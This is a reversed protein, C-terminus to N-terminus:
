KRTATALARTIERMQRIFFQALPSLTRNRPTIIEVPSRTHPLAIPLAKFPHHKRRLSLAFAPHFALFRGTELLAYQFNRSNTMITAKPPTLGAGTFAIAALGGFFTDAPELVWPESLLDALAIKRQRTLPNTAAAVVVLPDNFLTEGQQDPPLAGSTKAIALEIGRNSLASCLKATGAVEVTFTMRPHKMSLRQILPAVLAAAIGEVIGIRLEGTTPDSLFEIDNVCHRLEDFVARGRKILAAGFATPEVGQRSRDLLRVGLTQELDAIAKSIAPQSLNLHEVAKGMGGAAAVAMFVDLDKLKLRRKIKDNWPM